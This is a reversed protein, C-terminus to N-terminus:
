VIAPCIVGIYEFTYTVNRVVAPKRKNETDVMLVLDSLNGFEAIYKENYFAKQGDRTSFEVYKVKNVEKSYGTFFSEVQNNTELENYLNKLSDRKMIRDLDIFCDQKVFKHLRTGGICIYVWGDSTCALLSEHKKNADKKMMNKLLMTNLKEMEKIM